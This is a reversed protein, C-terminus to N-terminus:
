SLKFSKDPNDLSSQFLTSALIGAVNVESESGKGISMMVGVCVTSGLETLDQPEYSYKGNHKLSIERERKKTGGKLKSLFGPTLM